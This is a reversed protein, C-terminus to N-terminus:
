LVDEMDGESGLLSKESLFDSALARRASIRKKPDLELCLELFAVCDMVEPDLEEECESKSNSVSWQVIEKLCFGTQGVTPLTSEFVTGHLLSASKMRKQGFISSIEIMAEVDDTSNFFPFRQCLITLLIVGASWIDIKTTQATCKFLVEPARFGRTGARNARRSPRQDNKPYGMSPQQSLAKSSELKARRGHYNERFDQHRYYPLIAVIQDQHRFATILPCVSDNGRLDHLLELENQIRLPSSTVYIKKVAVYRPRRSRPYSDARSNSSASEEKKSSISPSSWNTAGQSQKDWENEYCNYQLDEAIMVAVIGEGIKDIMKFSLAKIRFLKELMSMDFRVAEDVDNYSDESEDSSESANSVQEEVGNHKQERVSSEKIVCNEM